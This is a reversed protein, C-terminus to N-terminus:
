GIRRVERIVGDRVAVDIRWTLSNAEEVVRSQTRAIDL